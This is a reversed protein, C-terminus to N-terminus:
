ERNVDDADRTLNNIYEIVLDLKKLSDIVCVTFGLERLADHIRTQAPRPKCGKTKIEAFVVRGNKLLCLRDPLGAIYDSLLKICMGGSKNIYSVLKREINKETDGSYRSTIM